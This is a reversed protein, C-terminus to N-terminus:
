KIDKSKLYNYLGMKSKPYNKMLCNMHMSSRDLEEIARYILASQLDDQTEETYKLTKILKKIKYPNSNTLKLKNYQRKADVAINLDIKKLKIDKPIKVAKILKLFRKNASWKGIKRPIPYHNQIAMAVDYTMRVSNENLGIWSFDVSFTNITGNPYHMGPVNCVVMDRKLSTELMGVQYFQLALDKSDKCGPYGPFMKSVKEAAQIFPYYSDVTRHTSHSYYQSTAECVKKLNTIARLNIPSLLLILLLIIKSFRKM